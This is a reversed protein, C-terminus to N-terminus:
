SNRLFLSSLCDWHLSCCKHRISDVSCFCLLDWVKHLLNIKRIKSHHQLVLVLRPSRMLSSFRHRIMVVSSLYFLSLKYKPTAITHLSFLVQYFDSRPISNQTTFTCPKLRYLLRFHSYGSKSDALSVIGCLLTTRMGITVM